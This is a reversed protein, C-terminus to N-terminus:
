LAAGYAEMFAQSDKGEETRAKHELRLVKEKHTQQLICAATACHVEAERITEMAQAENLHMTLEASLELEKSHSDMTARTSLLQELAVKIREQLQLLEDTLGALRVRPPTWHQPIFSISDIEPTWPLAPQLLQPITHALSPTDDPTTMWLPDTNLNGSPCPHGVGDGKQRIPDEAGKTPPPGGPSDITARDQAYWM